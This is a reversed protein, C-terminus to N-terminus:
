TNSKVILDPSVRSANRRTVSGHFICVSVSAHIGTLDHHSRCQEQNHDAKQYMRRTGCFGTVNGCDPLLINGPACSGCRFATVYGAHGPGAGGRVRVFSQDDNWGYGRWLGRTQVCSHWLPGALLTPSCIHGYRGTPECCVRGPFDLICMRWAEYLFAL